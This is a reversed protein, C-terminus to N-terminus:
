GNLKNLKEKRAEKETYFYKSFIPKGLGSFKCKKIYYLKGGSNKNILVIYTDTIEFNDQKLSFGNNFKIEQQFADYWKGKKFPKNNKKCLVKM